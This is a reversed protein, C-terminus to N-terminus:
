WHQWGIVEKSKRYKRSKRSKRSKRTKRTKKRRRGGMMISLNNFNSTIDDVGDNSVEDLSDALSKLDYASNNQNKAVLYLNTGDRLTMTSKKSLDWFNNSLMTLDAQTPDGKFAIAKSKPNIIQARMKDTFVSDM